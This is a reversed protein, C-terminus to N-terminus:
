ATQDNPQQLTYTALLTDQLYQQGSSFFAKFLALSKHRLVKGHIYVPARSYLPALRALPLNTGGGMVDEYSFVFNHVGNVLLTSFCMLCPEMTSYVTLQSRDILPQDQLLQRLAIIEAHDLESATQEASEQSQQRKGRAVITNEHVIVCGVPFEGANLASKALLLAEEMFHEHQM